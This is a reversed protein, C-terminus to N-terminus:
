RARGKARPRRNESRQVDRSGKLKSASEPFAVHLRDLAARHKMLDEALDPQEFLATALERATPARPRLDQGFIMTGGCGLCVGLDNPKPILPKEMPTAADVRKGCWPCRTEAYRTTLMDSMAAEASLTEALM